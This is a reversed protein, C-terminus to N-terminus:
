SYYSVAPEIDIKATWVLMTSVEIGATYVLYSIDSVKGETSDVFGMSISEYRM